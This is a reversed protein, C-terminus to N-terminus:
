ALLYDRPDVGADKCSLADVVSYIFEGTDPDVVGLDILKEEELHEGQSDVIVRVMARDPDGSLESRRVVIGVDGTNLRLVTGIPFIGMASAFAKVLVPDFKTGAQAVLYRIADHPSYVKNRYPRETTMADFTDAIRVIRSFLDLSTDSPLKPYGSMDTNLHHQFAVVMSHLKHENCGPMKSLKRVGMLTHMRITKWEDVDLVGVKNLVGKPISVKGIDHFIAAMGLRGLWSKHLGLRQGITLSFICVNVSHTFTYEDHDKITALALVSSEDELLADAAAQVARKAKRLSVAGQSTQAILVDKTSGLAAYFAMKAREQHSLEKIGLEELEKNTKASPVIAIHPLGESELAKQAEPGRIGDTEFAALRDFFRIIEDRSVGSEFTIKETELRAAKALLQKYAAFNAVDCRMRAGNIFICDRWFRTEITPMNEFLTDLTSVLSDAAQTVAANNIEYIQLLRGMGAMQSILTKAAHLEAAQQSREADSEPKVMRKTITEISETQM